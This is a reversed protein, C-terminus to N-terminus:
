RETNSGEREQRERKEAARAEKLETAIEQNDRAREGKDLLELCMLLAKGRADALVKSEQAERLLKDLDDQKISAGNYEAARTKKHEENYKFDGAGIATACTVFEATSQRMCVAVKGDPTVYAGRGPGCEYNPKGHSDVVFVQAPACGLAVVPVVLAFALRM